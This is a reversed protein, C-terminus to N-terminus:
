LIEWKNIFITSCAINESGGVKNAYPDQYSLAMIHVLM